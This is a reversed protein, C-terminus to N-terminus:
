NITITGFRGLPDIIIDGKADHITIKVSDCEYDIKTYNPKDINFHVMTQDSLGPLGGHAVDAHFANIFEYVLQSSGPMIQNVDFEFTEHGIPGSIIEWVEIENVSILKNIMSYHADGTLFIVGKIKNEAIFDLIEQREKYYGLWNDYPFVYGDTMQVENIIFKFKAKSNLLVYKFWEKQKSGLMTLNHERLTSTYNSAGFTMLFGEPNTVKFAKLQPGLIPLELLQDVTLGAPIVPVFPFDPNKFEYYATDRYQRLDLIINEIKPNIKIKRYMKFEKCGGSEIEPPFLSSYEIFAQTAPYKLQQVNHVGQVFSTQHADNCSNGDYNDIFEHDDWNNFFPITRYIEIFDDGVYEATHLLEYFSRYFKLLQENPVTKPDTILDSYITDGNFHIFDIDQKLIPSVVEFPPINKCSMHIFSVPRDCNSLTNFEGIPSSESFGIFKYYYHCNSSLGNFKVKVIYNQTKTTIILKSRSKVFNKYKSVLVLVKVDIEDIINLQTNVIISNNSVEGSWVGYKFLQTM